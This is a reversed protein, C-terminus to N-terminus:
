KGTQPGQAEAPAVTEQKKLTRTLVDLVAQDRPRDAVRKSAIIDPLSAVLFTEGGVEVPIARSKVSIYSRMGHIAAMFDLQLAQDDAMLRFLDSVPYYPRLITADLARAVKKLKRLNAADQPLFFGCGGHDCARRASRRRCKRDDGSGSRDRAACSSRSDFHPRCGHSRNAQATLNVNEGGAPSFPSM